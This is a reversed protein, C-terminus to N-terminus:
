LRGKRTRKLASGAACVRLCLLYTWSYCERRSVRPVSRGFAACCDMVAREIQTSIVAQEIRTTIVATDGRAEHKATKISYELQKAALSELASLAGAGVLRAAFRASIRNQRILSDFFTSM